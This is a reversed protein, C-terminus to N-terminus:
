PFFPCPSVTHTNPHPPASPPPSPDDSVWNLCTGLSAGRGKIEDPLVEPLYIWPIPGAGLGFFLVFVLLAVFSAM